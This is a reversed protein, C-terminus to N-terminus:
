TFTKTKKEFFVVYFMLRLVQFDTLFVEVHILFFCLSVTYSSCLDLTSPGFFLLADSLFIRRRKGTSAHGCAGVTSPGQYFRRALGLSIM